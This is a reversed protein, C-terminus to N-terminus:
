FPSTSAMSVAAVVPGHEASRAPRDLSEFELRTSNATAMFTWTEATYDGNSAQNGGSTDWTFTETQGAAKVIMKKITPPGGGNGSFEFGVTYSTGAVTPIDRHEIAGAGPTGDLDV